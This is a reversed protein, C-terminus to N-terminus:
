GRWGEEYIDPLYGITLSPVREDFWYTTECSFTPGHSKWTRRVAIGGPLGPTVLMREIMAELVAQERQAHETAYRQLGDIQEHKSV